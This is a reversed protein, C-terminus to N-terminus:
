GNYMELVDHEQHGLGSVDRPRVLLDFLAVRCVKFAPWSLGRCRRRRGLSFTKWHIEFTANIFYEKNM